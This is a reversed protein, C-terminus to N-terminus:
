LGESSDEVVVAAGGVVAGPAPLTGVVPKPPVLAVGDVEEEATLGVGAEELAVGETDDDVAADTAGVVVFGAPEEPVFLLLVVVVLVASLGSMVGLASAGEGEGAAALPEPM